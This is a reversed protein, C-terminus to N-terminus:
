EVICREKLAQSYPCAERNFIFVTAFDKLHETLKTVKTICIGKNAEHIWATHLAFAEEYVLDDFPLWFRPYEFTM